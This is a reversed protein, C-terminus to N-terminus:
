TTIQIAKKKYGDNTDNKKNYFQEIFYSRYQKM